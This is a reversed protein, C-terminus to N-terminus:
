AEFYKLAAFKEINLGAAKAFKEVVEVPYEKIDRYGTLIYVLVQQDLDYEAVLEVLRKKTAAFAKYIPSFAFARGRLDGVSFHGQDEVDLKVGFLKNKPRGESDESYKIEGFIYMILDEDLKVGAQRAKTLAQVTWTLPERYARDRFPANIQSSGKQKLFSRDVYGLLFGLLYTDKLLEKEVEDGMRELEKLLLKKVWAPPEVENNEWRGINRKPIGLEEAMSQQTLNARLRAAKYENM